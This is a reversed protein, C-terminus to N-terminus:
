EYYKLYEELMKPFSVADLFRLGLREAWVKIGEDAAVVGAGLEKALLLVDLDPASDLTGRRLASRYKKRFDKIAGGIVEMEIRSKKVGKSAMVMAEVAAEWIAAESIRMGKNMRERIDRVYEFFVQSPIMTDYRNPTKKVIWTEAKVLIEEPCSYRNMYDTFEKYTVPPMHCSINLKIRSRAILDLFRDVSKHLDGAGLMEKLQNDTFATTDLVFRQKALM